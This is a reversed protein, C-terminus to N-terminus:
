EEYFHSEPPDPVNVKRTKPIVRIDKMKHTVNCAQMLRDASQLTVRDNRGNNGNPYAIIHRILRSSVRSRVSLMLQGGHGHDRNYNEVWETVYPKIDTIMVLLTDSGRVEKTRGEWLTKQFKRRRDRLEQLQSSLVKIEEDLKAIEALTEDRWQELRGM